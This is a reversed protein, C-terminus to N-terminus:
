GRSGGARRLVLYLNLNGSPGDDLFREELDLDIGHLLSEAEGPGTDHCYRVAGSDEDGWRLLFDGEELGAPDIPHAATRNHEEWSLRRRRLREDRGFQWFSLWLMGGPQLAAAMASLLARRRAFGAVHHLLGFAAVLPFFAPRVLDLGTAVTVDTHVLLCRPPLRHRALALLPLSADVGTYVFASEGLEAALFLALRGNGCGVDLVRPIRGNVTGELVSSSLGRLLRHWGRWPSRRTDSFHEAWREYFRRNIEELAAATADEM